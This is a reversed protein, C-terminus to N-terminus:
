HKKFKKYYYLVKKVFKRTEPFPPIGKYLKIKEPGAHYAALALRLNKFKKLLRKLYIAAGKLNELPDYPNKIRLYKITSPMLQMLGIAGKSSVAKPNFSSEVKAIAKLLAPDLSYTDGIRKFIRDYVSYRYFHKKEKILLKCYKKSTKYNLFVIEGTKPNICKYIHCFGSSYILFFLALFLLCKSKM